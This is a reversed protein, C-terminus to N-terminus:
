AKDNKKVLTKNWDDWDDDKKSTSPKPEPGKSRQPQASKPKTRKLKEENEKKYCLFINHPGGCYECEENDCLGARHKLLCKFCLGLAKIISTRVKATEKKLMNCNWISHNGKCMLCENKAKEKKIEPKKENVQFVRKPQSRRHDNKLMQSFKEGQSPQLEFAKTELHNLFETTKSLGEKGKKQKWEIRLEDNLKSCIILNILPDWNEVSAGLNPLARLMQNTVDIIKRLTMFNPRVELAKMEFFKRIYEDILEDKRDYRKKLDEWASDYNTGTMQYGRITDLAPGKLHTHLQYFKVAKTMKKSKNVLDEFLEKFSEWDALNGSFTPLDITGIKFGIAGNVQDIEEDAPNGVMENDYNEPNLSQNGVKEELSKMKEEAEAQSKKSIEKLKTVEKRLSELQAATEESESKNASSAEERSKIENDIFKDVNLVATEVYVKQTVLDDKEVSTLDNLVTREYKNVFDTYIASIQSRKEQLAQISSNKLYEVTVSERIGKLDNYLNTAIKKLTSAIEFRSTAIMEEVRKAIADIETKNAGLQEITSTKLSERGLETMKGQHLDRLTTFELKKVTLQERSAAAIFEPSIEKEKNRIQITLDNIDNILSNTRNQGESSGSQVVEHGPPDEQMVEDVRPQAMKDPQDTM